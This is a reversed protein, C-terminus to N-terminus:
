AWLHCLGGGDDGCIDVQCGFQGGCIDVQSGSRSCSFSTLCGLNSAGRVLLCSFCLRFLSELSVLFNLLRSASILLRFDWISAKFSLIVLADLIVLAQNLLFFILDM